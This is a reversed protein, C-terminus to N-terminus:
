SVTKKRTLGKMAREPRSFTRKRGLRTAEMPLVPPLLVPRKQRQKGTRVFEDIPAIYVTPPWIGKVGEKLLMNLPSVLRTSYRFLFRSPAHFKPSADNPSTPSTSDSSSSRPSTTHALTESFLRLEAELAGLPGFGDDKSSCDWSDAIDDDSLFPWRRHPPPFNTSRFSAGSNQRARSIHEECKPDPHAGKSRTSPQSFSYSPRPAFSFSLISSERRQPQRPSAADRELDNFSWDASFIAGFRKSVCVPRGHSKTRQFSHM